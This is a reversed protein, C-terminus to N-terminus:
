TGTISETFPDSILILATFTTSEFVVVVRGATLVHVGVAHVIGEGLTARGSALADLTFNSALGLRFETFPVVGDTLTEILTTEVGIGSSAAFCKVQAHPIGDVLLAGALAGFISSFNSTGRSRATFPVIILTFNFTFLVSIAVSSTSRVAFALEEEVTDVFCQLGAVLLAIQLVLSRSGTIEVGLAVPVQVILNAEM